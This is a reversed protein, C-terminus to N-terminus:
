DAAESSGLRHAYAIAGKSRTFWGGMDPRTAVLDELVQRIEPAYEDLLMYPLLSLYGGHRNRYKEMPRNRSGIIANFQGPSRYINTMFMRAIGQLDDDTFVIGHQAAVLAFRVTVQAKWIPAIRNGRRNDPTPDYGWVVTGNEQSYISAKYYSAIARAMRHYKEKGTIVHLMVLTNGVCAMHNLPEIRGDILRWYYGQDTGELMRFEDEHEGICLEIAELFRDAQEGFQAALQDDNRVIWCFRAIPYTVRGAVTVVTTYSGPLYTDSGWSHVVRGRVEDIRGLESDRFALCREFTSAILVLFRPQKTAEFALICADTAYSVGWAYTPARATDLKDALALMRDIYQQLYGYLVDPNANSLMLERYLADIATKRDGRDLQLLLDEIRRLRPLEKIIEAFAVLSDSTITKDVVAQRLQEYTPYAGEEVVAGWDVRAVPASDQGSVALALAVVGGLVPIAVFALLRLNPFYRRM